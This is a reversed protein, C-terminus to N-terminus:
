KLGRRQVLPFPKVGSDPHGQGHSTSLLLLETETDPSSIACLLPEVSGGSLELHSDLGQPGQPGWLAFTLLVWPGVM